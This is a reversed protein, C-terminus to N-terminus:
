HIKDHMGNLYDAIKEFNEKSYELKTEIIKEKETAEYCYPEPWVSILFYDEEDNKVRAVRYRMGSDSGTFPKGKKYYALALLDKQEIM